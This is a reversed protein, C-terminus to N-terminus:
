EEERDIRIHGKMANSDWTVNGNNGGQVRMWREYGKKFVVDQFHVRAGNKVHIAPSCGDCAIRFGNGNYTVDNEIVLTETLVLDETLEITQQATASLGILLLSLTFFFKM